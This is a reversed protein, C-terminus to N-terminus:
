KDETISKLRYAGVKGTDTVNDLPITTFVADAKIAVLCGDPVTLALRTVAARTRATIACLWQPQHWRLMLGNVPKAPAPGWGDKTHIIGSSRGNSMSGSLTDLAVSRLAHRLWHWHEPDTECGELAAVLKEQWHRLPDAAAGIDAPAYLVRQHIHHEWHHERLLRIESCHLWYKAKDGPVSPYFYSSRTGTEMKAGPVLGIHRWKAPVKFSTLYWGERGQAYDKGEDNTFHSPMYVPVYRAHALYAVRADYEYIRGTQHYGLKEVRHPVANAGHLGRSTGEPLQQYHVGKPLSRLLMLRGFGIPAPQMMIDAGFHKAAWNQLTALAIAQQTQVERTYDGPFWKAMLPAQGAVHREDRALYINSM